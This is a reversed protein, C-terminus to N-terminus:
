KEKPLYIHVDGRYINPFPLKEKLYYNEDITKMLIPLDGKIVASRYAPKLFRDDLVLIGAEKKNLYDLLIQKNLLGFKKCIQTPLCLFYSSVDFEMGPLPERDAQVAFAPSFTFVKTNKQTYKDIVGAVQYICRPERREWQLNALEWLESQLFPTLLILLSLLIKILLRATKDRISELVKTISISLLLVVLPFYFSTVTSEPPFYPLFSSIFFSVIVMFALLSVIDFENLYSVIGRRRDRMLWAYILFAPLLLFMLFYNQIVPVFYLARDLWSVLPMGRDYINYGESFMWAMSFLFKEKAIFIFPVLILGLTALATILSYFIIKRNHREKLIIFLLLSWLYPSFIHKVCNALSMVIVSSIYNFPKKLRSLLLYVALIVLFNQLPHTVMVSAYHFAHLNVIHLILVLLSAYGGALKRAISCSLIVAFFSFLFATIRGVYLNPGFFYQPVAYILSSLPAHFDFFDRYPLKGKTVLYSNAFYWGEDTYINGFLIWFVGELLYFFILSFFLINILRQSM